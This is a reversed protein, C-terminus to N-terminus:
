APKEFGSEAQPCTRSRRETSFLIKLRSLIILILRPSVVDANSYIIQNKATHNPIKVPIEFNIM